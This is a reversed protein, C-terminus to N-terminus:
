AHNMKKLCDKICLVGNQLDTPSLHNHWKRELAFQRLERIIRQWQEGAMMADMQNRNLYKEARAKGGGHDGGPHYPAKMIGWAFYLQRLSQENTVERVAEAIAQQRLDNVRTPDFSALLELASVQKEPLGAALDGSDAGQGELLHL